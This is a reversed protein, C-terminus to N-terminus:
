ICREEDLPQTGCGGDRAGGVKDRREYVAVSCGAKAAEIAAALGAPGGGIIAIDFYDQRMHEM